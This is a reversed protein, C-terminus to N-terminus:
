EKTIQAYSVVDRPTGNQLISEMHQAARFQAERQHTNTGSVSDCAQRRYRRLSERCIRACALRPDPLAEILAPVAQVSGIYGLAEAACARVLEDQDKLRDILARVAETAGLVGLGEAARMRVEWNRDNLAEILVAMARQGGRAIFIEVAELRCRPDKDALSKLAESITSM